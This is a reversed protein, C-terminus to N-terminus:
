SSSPTPVEGTPTVVGVTVWGTEVSWASHWEVKDAPPPDVPPLGPPIYIPNTPFPGGQAPHGPSPWVGVGSPPLGQDPRGPSPWISPPAGGPAIPHSPRGPSPWVGVGSPPLGQDPHGPSPWIGPPSGPPPYIPGGGVSLESYYMEGVITVKTM